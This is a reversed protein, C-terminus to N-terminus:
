GASGPDHRRHESAARLNEVQASERSDEVLRDLPRQGQAMVEKGGFLALTGEGPALEVMWVSPALASHGAQVVSEWEAAVMVPPRM